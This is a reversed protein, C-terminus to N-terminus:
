KIIINRVRVSGSRIVLTGQITTYSGSGTPATYAADWGGSLTVDKGLDFLLTEPFLYTEAKMEAGSTVASYANEIGPNDLPTGSTVQVKNVIDFTASVDRDASMTVTCSGSCDGGFVGPAKWDGPSATLVVATGSPYITTCIGNLCNLPPTGAPAASVSGSGGGAMTVKLTFSAIGSGSLPVTM